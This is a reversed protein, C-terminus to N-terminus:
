YHRTFFSRHAELERIIDGRTRGKAELRATEQKYNEVLNLESKM